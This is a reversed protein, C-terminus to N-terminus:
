RLLGEKKMESVMKGVLEQLIKHVDTPNTIRVQAAWVLKNQRLSYVLTEVSLITEMKVYGPDYMGGWGYGWYGGYFTSYSPGAYYTAPSGSFQQDRGLVRMVVAAAVGEQELKARVKAEDRIETTPVLSYIPVGQVGLKTLEVALVHEIGQRMTEDPIVIASVVKQGALRGPQADPAKWTSVLKTGAWANAGMLVACAVAATRAIRVM